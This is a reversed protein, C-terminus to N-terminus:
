IEKPLVVKIDKMPFDAKNNTVLTLNYLKAQAAIFCDLMITRKSKVLLQHRYKSAQIAVDRDILIVDFRNMLRRFKAKEKSNARALFEAVVIVSIHLKNSKITQFLMKKEAQSNVFAKIFINTDLLYAM